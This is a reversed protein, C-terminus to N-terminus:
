ADHSRSKAYNFLYMAIKGYSTTWSTIKFGASGHAAPSERKSPNLSRSEIDLVESRPCLIFVVLADLSLGQLRDTSPEVHKAPVQISSGGFVFCKKTGAGSVAYQTNGGNCSNASYGTVIVTRDTLEEGPELPAM